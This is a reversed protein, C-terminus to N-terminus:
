GRARAPRPRSEEKAEQKAEEPTMRLRLEHRRWTWGYDALAVILWAGAAWLTTDLAFRALEAAFDGSVHTGRATFQRWEHSARWAVVGIGVTFQLSDRLAARLTEGELVRGWAGAGVLRDPRPLVRDPLWIWGAQLLHAGVIGVVIALLVPALMALGIWCWSQLSSVASAADWTAAGSTRWADAGWDSWQALMRPGLLRLTALGLFWGLVSALAPSRAVDGADRAQQRRRPTPEFSRQDDTDDSM